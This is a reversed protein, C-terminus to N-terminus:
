VVAVDIVRKKQGAALGESKSANKTMKTRLGEEDVVPCKCSRSIPCQIYYSSESSSLACM